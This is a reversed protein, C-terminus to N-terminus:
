LSSLTRLHEDAELAFVEALEPSVEDPEFAPPPPPASAPEAAAVPPVTPDSPAAPVTEPTPSAVEVPLDTLPEDAPLSVEAVTGGRLRGYARTREGALTEEVVSGGAGAGLVGEIQAVTDRFLQATQEDLPLRGNAVDDLAQELHFAIHSLSALGVMS